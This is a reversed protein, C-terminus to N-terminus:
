LGKRRYFLVAPDEWDGGNGRLAIESRHIYGNGSGDKGALRWDCLFEPNEDGEILGQSSSGAEGM